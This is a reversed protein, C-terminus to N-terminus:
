GGSVEILKESDGESKTQGNRYPRRVVSDTNAIYIYKPEPGPPYFAIGFPQKLGNLFVDNLEPTGDNNADRLLRIRDAKSEAVFFDGNPATVIVRPNEMDRAFEQVKFGNPVKPMAGEPRKVLKPNNKA